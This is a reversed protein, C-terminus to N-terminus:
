LCIATGVLKSYKKIMVATINIEIPHLKIYKIVNHKM